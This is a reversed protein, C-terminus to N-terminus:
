LKNPKCNYENVINIFDNLVTFVDIVCLLYKVGWSKSSLSEMETIDKLIKDSVTSKALDKSDSYATDHASCAKGLENRYLCKLNGTERSKQIKQM